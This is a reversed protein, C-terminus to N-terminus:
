LWLFCTKNCSAVSSALGKSSSTVTLPVIFYWKITINVHLTILGIHASMPMYAFMGNGVM